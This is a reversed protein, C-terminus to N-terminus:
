QDLPTEYSSTSPDEGIRSGWIKISNDDSGAVIYNGDPSFAVTLVTKNHGNLIEIKQNILWDLRRWEFPMTNLSPTGKAILAKELQKRALAFNGKNKASEAAKINLIYSQHLAADREGQAKARQKNAEAQLTLALDKQRSAEVAFVISITTAAILALTVVATSIAATKNKRILRHFQEMRTPPRAMIPEDALHRRVDDPFEAVSQYRRDRDKELAKLCITELDGKLSANIESIRQPQLERIRSAAQTLSTGILDYPLRDVLLQYLIVGLACVDSRSDLDAPDLEVQEPSM